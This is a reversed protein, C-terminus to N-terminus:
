LEFLTSSAPAFYAPAFYAIHHYRVVRSRQVSVLVLEFPSLVYAYPIYRVTPKYATEDSTEWISISTRPSLGKSSNRKSDANKLKSVYSAQYMFDPKWGRNGQRADGINRDSRGGGGAHKAVM